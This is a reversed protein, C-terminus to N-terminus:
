IINFNLVKHLVLSQIFNVEAATIGSEHKEKPMEKVSVPLFIRDGINLTDKATM